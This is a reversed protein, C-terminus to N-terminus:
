PFVRCVLENLLLVKHLANLWCRKRAEDTEESIRKEVDKTLREAEAEIAQAQEDMLTAEEIAADARVQLEEIKALMDADTSANALMGYAPM